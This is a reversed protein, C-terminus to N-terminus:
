LGLSYKMSTFDLHLGVHHVICLTELEVPTETMGVERPSPTKKFFFEELMDYNLAFELCTRHYIGHHIELYVFVVLYNDWPSVLGPAPLGWGARGNASVPGRAGSRRCTSARYTSSAGSEFRLHKWAGSAPEGPIGPFRPGLLLSDAVQTSRQLSGRTARSRADEQEGERKASSWRWWGGQVVQIGGPAPRFEEGKWLTTTQELNNLNQSATIKASPNMKKPERSNKARDIKTFRLSHAKRGVEACRGEQARVYIRWLAIEAM